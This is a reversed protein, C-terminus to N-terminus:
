KSLLSLIYQSQFKGNKFVTDRLLGEVEYGCKQHMKLSQINSELILAQIRHMNREKFMYNTALTLAECGYGKGWCDQEGILIHSTCSRELQNIDTMYVNGIYRNNEKLCIALRVDKSNFIANEIWRKEYSESVFYRVGGLMDWIRLDNRWKISTKYDDLELARLFVKEEM